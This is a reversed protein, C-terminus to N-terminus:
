IETACMSRIIFHLQTLFRYTHGCIHVHSNRIHFPTHPLYYFCTQLSLIHSHSPCHLYTLINMITCLLNYVSIRSDSLMSAIDLLMHTHSSKWLDAITCLMTFISHLLTLNDMYQNGVEVEVQAGIRLSICPFKVSKSIWIRVQM